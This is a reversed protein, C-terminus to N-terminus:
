AAQRLPASHCDPTPTLSCIIFHAKFNGNSDNKQRSLTGLADPAVGAHLSGFSLRYTLRSHVVLTTMVLARAEPAWGLVSQLGKREAPDEHTCLCPPSWQHQRTVLLHGRAGAFRGGGPQLDQPHLPLTAGGSGTHDPNRNTRRALTLFTWPPWWASSPLLTIHYTWEPVRSLVPRSEAGGGGPSM